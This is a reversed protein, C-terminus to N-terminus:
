LEPEADAEEFPTLLRLGLWQRSRMTRRSTFGREQLLLGFTRKPPPDEGSRKSWELFADYLETATVTAEPEVSCREALFGAMHDMQERYDATAQRVEKPVGLGDSQWNLCGRVAWALIGEREAELKAGLAHDQEADPIGVAFPILKVRRWIADDTGTIRPKHNSAVWVKFSPAISFVDAFLRKVKLPEVSTLQKVRAEALQRGMDSEVAIVFRTGQLTSLDNMALAPDAKRALLTEAALTAAYDGLLKSIAHLMTSKGNSGTGWCFLLVQDFIAGVLSYGVARQVFGILDQNGEFIRELFAVWTPCETTPEYRVPLCKTILDERRHPRLQPTGRLQLTGNQCNLLWPDQDLADPPLAIERETEALTLMNRIARASQATLAFRARVRQRERDPEEMVEIFLSDVVYKAAREVEGGRAPTWHTEVWALWTRTAPVFRFNCGVLRVFRRALGLETEREELADVPRVTPKGTGDHSM